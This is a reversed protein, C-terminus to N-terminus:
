IQYLQKYSKTEVDYIVPKDIYIDEGNIGGIYVEIEYTYKEIVKNYEKVIALPNNRKITAVIKSGLFEDYSNLHHRTTIYSDSQLYKNLIEWSLKKSEM